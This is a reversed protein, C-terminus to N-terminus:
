FIAFLHGPTNAPKESDISTAPLFRLVNQSLRDKGISFAILEAVWHLTISGDLAVPISGGEALLPTL